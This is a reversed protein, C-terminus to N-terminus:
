FGKAHDSDSKPKTAYTQNGKKPEFLGQWGQLMSQNISAIAAAEGWEAFKKDWGEIYDKSTTWRKTKRLALWSDWSKSLDERSRIFIDAVLGDAKNDNMDIDKNSYPHFKRRGKPSSNKMTPTFNKEGETAVTLIDWLTGDPDRKIFGLDCLRQISYQTNRISQCMYASLTERTAFCGRENSLIHVLAFLFKDSHTLSENTFVSAPIWVGKFNFQTM